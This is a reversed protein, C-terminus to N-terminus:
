YHALRHFEEVIQTEIEQFESRAAQVAEADGRVEAESIQVQLDRLRDTRMKQLVITNSVM